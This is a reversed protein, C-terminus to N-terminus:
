FNIGINLHPEFLFYNPWDKELDHFDDPFNTNVPWYCFSLAPELFLRDKLFNWKYGVRFQLYLQGGSQIIDNQTDYFNQKFVDAHVNTCLNKWVYRQYIIGAGFARVYGPYDKTHASKDKDGFPIGLPEHYKWTTVNLILADKPTVRFGVNLEYFDGPDKGFNALSWLSTSIFCKFTISDPKAAQLCFETLLALM